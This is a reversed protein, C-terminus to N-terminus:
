HNFLIVLEKINIRENLELPNISIQSNDNTNQKNKFNAMLTKNKANLMDLKYKLDENSETLTSVIKSLSNRGVFFGIVLSFIGILIIFVFSM